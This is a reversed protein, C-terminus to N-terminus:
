TATWSPARKEFFAAVGERADNSARVRSVAETTLEWARDDAAAVVADLAQLSERVSIPSNDCIRRALRVAETLADGAPALVNVLGLREAREADISEGTLLMERAVNLPLARAARFLGGCSAIVGRAVEPLGFRATRSAVVLDCALVIELGGGLAPGEVAAVLPKVRRRQIIGYSGGRETPGPRDRLDTGASFIKTTGTLVGAWLGADDDLENLAADIGEAMEEDIANAKDERRMEVILLRGDRTREVTM